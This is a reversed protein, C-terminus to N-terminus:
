RLGAWRGSGRGRGRRRGLAALTTGQLLGLLRKRGMRRTQGLLGTWRDTASFRATWRSCWCTTLWGRTGGSHATTSMWTRPKTGLSRRPPNRRRWRATAEKRPQTPSLPAEPKAMRPSSASSPTPLPAPVAAPLASSPPPIAAPTSTSSTASTTPTSRIPASEKPPSSPPSWTPPPIATPTSTSSLHSLYDPDVQHASIGQAALKAAVLDASSDGNPHLHQLHSLYDPDVQHARIGQAALKAAVLDAASAPARPRPM